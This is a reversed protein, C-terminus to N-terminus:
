HVPCVSDSGESVEGRSVRERLVILPGVICAIGILVSSFSLISKDYYKGAVAVILAAFLLRSSTVLSAIVGKIEPMLNMVEGFYPTQIWNYGFAYSVMCLTLWYPNRPALWAAVLFCFISMGLIVLGARKAKQVGWVHIVRSGSLSALLWGGLVAGQFYPYISKSVRFEVVFLVSSISLFALYGGFLLSITLNMQWFPLSKLARRFDSSLRGLHLSQRQERPLTEKFSFLCIVWSLFVLVAIVLFNARFGFCENLVGGLLPAATMVVPIITNLDNLAKLAKRPSFADFIIASGLSFCGGSGLGQLVRGILLVFFNQAFVTVLSGLLFLGLAVWLPKQRGVADSLPGYIPGAICLGIFNWTLVGQIVSESVHFYEMMDPFAPLYIDTEICAAIFVVVILVLQRLEWASWRFSTNSM